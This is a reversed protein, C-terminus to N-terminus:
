GLSTTINLLPVLTALIIFVVIGVMILILMPELLATLRTVMTEVQEDYTEAVKSLM